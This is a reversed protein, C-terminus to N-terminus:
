EVTCVGADLPDFSDSGDGGCTDGGLDCYTWSAGEDASVRAAYTYVGPIEPAWFNGVYEDNALDGELLGDTDTNYDMSYWLWISSGDPDTGEEGVGLDVWLGEGEGEGITVDTQYVWVYIDESEDDAAVTTSCPYQIHCYDVDIIPPPIVEAQGYGGAAAECVSWEGHDVRFRVTYEFEGDDEPYWWSHYVDVGEGDADWYMSEWVWSAPDSGKPGYGAQAEVGIPEGSTTTRSSMELQGYIEVSEDDRIVSVVTPENLQCGDITTSVSTDVPATDPEGDVYSFAAVAEDGGDRVTVIVDGSAGPPTTCWLEGSSLRTLDLCAAGGVDVTSEAGFGWGVVRVLTGGGIPGEDPDLRDIGIPGAPTTDVTDIVPSDATEATEGDAECGILFTVFM